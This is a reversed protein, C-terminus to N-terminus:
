RAPPRQAEYRQKEKELFKRIEQLWAVRAGWWAADGSRVLLGMRDRWSRAASETEADDQIDWRLKHLRNMCATEADRVIRIMMPLDSPECLAIKAHLEERVPPMAAACTLWRRFHQTGAPTPVGLRRGQGIQILGKDALRTMAASATGRGFQASGFREKLRLDLEYPTGPREILLGLVVETGGM